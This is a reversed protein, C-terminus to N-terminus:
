CGESGRRRVAGGDGGPHHLRRIPHAAGGLGIAELFKQTLKLPGVEPPKSRQRLIQAAGGHGRSHAALYTNRATQSLGATSGPPSTWRGSKAAWHGREVKQRGGKAGLTDYRSPVYRPHQAGGSRIDRM